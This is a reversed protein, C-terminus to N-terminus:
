RKPITPVLEYLTYTYISKFGFRAVWFASQANSHGSAFPINMDRLTALSAAILSQFVGRAQFQPLVSASTLHASDTKLVMGLCGALVGDCRAILLRMSPPESCLQHYRNRRFTEEDPSLQYGASLIELYADIGATSAPAVCEVEVGDVRDLALSTPALYAQVTIGTAGRALLREGLDQPQSWPYVSWTFPLGQQHYEDIIADIQADPNTPELNSFLIDNLTSFKASPTITRYWGNQNIIHTDDRVRQPGIPGNLVIELERPVSLASTLLYRSTAKTM